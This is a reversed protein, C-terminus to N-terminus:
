LISSNGENFIKCKRLSVIKRICKHHPLSKSELIQDEINNKIIQHHINEQLNM